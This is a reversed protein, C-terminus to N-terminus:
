EQWIKIFSSNELCMKSFNGFILNWLFGDLPLRTTGHPRVPLCIHCLQYDSRSIKHFHKFPAFVDWYKILCLVVFTYPYLPESGCIWVRQVLCFHATLKMCRLEVV